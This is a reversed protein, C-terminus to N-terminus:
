SKKSDTLLWLQLKKLKKLKKIEIKKNSQSLWCLKELHNYFSKRITGSAL